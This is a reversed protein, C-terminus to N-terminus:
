FSGYKPFSTHIQRSAYFSSLIYTAGPPEMKELLGQLETRQSIKGFSQYVIGFMNIVHPLTNFDGQMYFSAKTLPQVIKEAESLEEFFAKSVHLSYPFDPSTGYAADVM